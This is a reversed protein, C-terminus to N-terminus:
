LLVVNRYISDSVRGEKGVFSCYCHIEAGSFDSPVHLSYTLASRPAAGVVPLFEDLEPNYILLMLQDTPDSQTSPGGSALDWTFNINNGATPVVLLNKAQTVSGLSTKLTTFDIEFNPSLGMTAHTLNYSVAANMATETAKAKRAFGIEILDGIHALFSTIMGFKYRQDKQKQTAPKSSKNHLGTIVNQGKLNYGILPGAKGIFGGFAGKPQTGM